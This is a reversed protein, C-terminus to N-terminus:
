ADNEIESNLYVKVQDMADDLSSSNDIACSTLTQYVALREEWLRSFVEYSDEAPDFFAPRGTSHIREFVLQKPATVHLLRHSKVLDYNHTNMLTGGGLAIVASRSQLIDRLVTHEEERYYSEGHGQMIERCTLALGHHNAYRKEIEDDLDILKKNLFDALHRGISTKGVHKFGFLIIHQHDNTQIVDLNAGLSQMADIFGPYTKHIAEGDTILTIGDALMGAVTLAMVTRHDQYGDVVAGQLTSQYLTMGDSQETIKAGMRRLGDTMSHIRDTEKIRAQKVNVIETKGAAQTAVVALAPLLDPIANADISTGQLPQGGHIIIENDGVLIRAGMKQLLPIFQKDGQTDHMNLGRLTVEGPILSAAALLCSASSFDGAISTTFPQYSQGGKISYIDINEKQQHHYQIGQQTLWALTMDVYPREHLNKVTIVSDSHACPLHILLASLYQSTFGEIDVRGGQLSGSVYIPLQGDNELYQIHMGLKQLADLLPKMPRNRMQEGCHVLIPDQHNKRLGLLPLVFRTAIGSNGTYIENVVTSFPQGKSLATLTSGDIDVAVGMAHLIALTCQSDDSELVNFLISKGRALAAFFLGRITHSKSGPLMVTGHLHPTKHVVIRM